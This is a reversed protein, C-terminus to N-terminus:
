RVPFAYGLSARNKEFVMGPSQVSSVTAIKTGTKPSVEVDFFYFGIM